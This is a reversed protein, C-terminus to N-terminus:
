MRHKVIKKSKERAVYADIEAGCVCENIDLVL